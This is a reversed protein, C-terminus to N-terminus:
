EHPAGKEVLVYKGVYARMEAIAEPSFGAAAHPSAPCVYDFLVHPVLYGADAVEALYDLYDSHCASSDQAALLKWAAALAMYCDIDERYTRFYKATAMRNRFKGEFRWVARESAFVIWATTQAPCDELSSEVVIEYHRGRTHRVLAYEPADRTMVEFGKLRGLMDLMQWALLNTRDFIVADVLAQKARDLDGFWMYCRALGVLAGADTADLSVAKGFLPMAEEVNQQSLLLDGLLVYPAGFEPDSELAKRIHGVAADLVGASLRKLAKSYERIAVARNSSDDPSTVELRDPLFDSVVGGALYASAMATETSDAFSRFEIHYIRPSEDLIQIPNRDFGANQALNPACAPGLQLLVLLAVVTRPLGARRVTCANIEAKGVMLIL